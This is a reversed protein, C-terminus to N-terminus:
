WLGLSSDQRCVEQSRKWRDEVVFIFTDCFSQTAIRLKLRIWGDKEIRSRSIRLAFKRRNGKDSGTEADNAVFDSNEDDAMVMSM